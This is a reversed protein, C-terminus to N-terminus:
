ILFLCILLLFTRMVIFINQKKELLTIEYNNAPVRLRLPNAPNFALWFPKPAVSHSSNTSSWRECRANAGPPLYDGETESERSLRLHETKSTGWKAKM